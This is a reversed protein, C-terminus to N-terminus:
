QDGECAQDRLISIGDVDLGYEETADLVDGLFDAPIEDPSVGEVLLSTAKM